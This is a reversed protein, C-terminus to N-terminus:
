CRQVRVKVPKILLGAVSGIPWDVAEGSILIGTCIGIWDGTATLICKIWVTTLRELAVPAVLRVSLAVLRVSLAVLRVSLAVLWVSLAVLRVSLAVM